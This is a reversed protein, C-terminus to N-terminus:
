YINSHSVDPPKHVTYTCICLLSMMFSVSMKGAGEVKRVVGGAGAM